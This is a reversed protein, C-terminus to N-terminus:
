NNQALSNETYLLQFYSHIQHYIKLHLKKIFQLLTQPCAVLSNQSPARQAQAVDLQVLQVASARLQLCFQMQSALLLSVRSLLTFRM